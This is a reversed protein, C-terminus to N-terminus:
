YARGQSPRVAPFPLSPPSPAPPSPLGSSEDPLYEGITSEPSRDTLHHGVPAGTQYYRVGRGDQNRRGCVAQDAYVRVGDRHRDERERAVRQGDGIDVNASRPGRSPHQSSRQIPRALHTHTSFTSQPGLNRLLFTYHFNSYRTMNAKPM